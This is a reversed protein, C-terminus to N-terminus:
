EGKKTGTAIKKGQGRWLRILWFYVSGILGLLLVVYLINVFNSYASGYGGSGMMGQQMPMRSQLGYNSSVDDWWPMSGMMQMMGMMGGMPAEGCYMAPALNTHFQDHYPTGEEIGMM